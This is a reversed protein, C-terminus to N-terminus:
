LFKILGIFTKPFFFHVDRHHESMWEPFLNCDEM